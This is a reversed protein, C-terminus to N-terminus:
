NLRFGALKKVPNNAVSFGPSPSFSIPWDKMILLYNYIFVCVEFTNPWLLRFSKPRCNNVIAWTYFHFLGHMQEFCIEHNSVQIM